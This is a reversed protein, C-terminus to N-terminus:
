AALDALEAVRRAAITQWKALLAKADAGSLEAITKAAFGPSKAIAKSEKASYGRATLTATIVARLERDLPSLSEEGEAPFTNSLFLAHKKNVADIGDKESKGARCDTYAQHAGHSIFWAIAEPTMTSYTYTTTFLSKTKEKNMFEITFGNDTRTLM